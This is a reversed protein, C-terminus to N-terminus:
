EGYKNKTKNLELHYEDYIAKLQPNNSYEKLPTYIHHMKSPIYTEGDDSFQSFHTFVLDQEQGGYKIKGGGLFEFTQWHWPAGHGVNDDIYISDKDCLIPFYELYKQDGCTAYEPHRKHLVSEKWWDSTKIGLETSKFHVVGVNYLGEPRYLNLPFQRHRFIGVDRSGIEDLVIDLSKHFYIDSDIYTIDEDIAYLLFNSFYSALSWCFYSYESSKLDNLFKDGSLLDNLDYVKLSSCAFPLIKKHTAEDICLYHLIFDNTNKILSEYLTLGKNLYNIDSVTCIQKM